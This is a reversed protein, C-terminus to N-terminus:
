VEREYTWEINYSYTRSYSDWNETPATHFCKGSRVSFNPDNVPNVAEFIATLDGSSMTLNSPKSNIFLNQLQLRSPQEWYGGTYAVGTTDWGLVPDEGMIVNINLSRKFESRSNLYQLVPQNRGIVPTASFLQGPYTDNVAITESVSGSVISPARDDFSFNYTISGANLDRGLSKSVPIPNLWNVESVTKAWYYASPIVYTNTTSSYDSLSRIGSNFNPSVVRDFFEKANNYNNKNHSFPDNTSLGQITGDVTVARRENQQVDTNISISHVVPDGSYLIYNEDISYSGGEKDVSESIIRDGAQYAHSGFPINFRSDPLSGTGLNLYTYIFGSAQQWPALGSLYNGNEDYTPSGVCSTSKSVLYLKNAEELYTNLGEGNLNVNFTDYEAIDFTESISEVKYSPNYENGSGAFTGDSSELFTSATLSITYTTPLVGRGESGFDVSDVIAAFKYGSTTEGWNTINLIIPKSVGSGDGPINNSFLSRIKEQKRLTSALLQDQDYGYNPENAAGALGVTSPKTWDDTSLEATSKGATMDYFPNGKEPILTGELTIGYTAGFGNRGPNNYTTRNFSVLPAPVLYYDTSDKTVIIPM